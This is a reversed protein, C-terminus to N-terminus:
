RWQAGRAACRQARASHRPLPWMVEAMTIAGGPGSPVVKSMDVGLERARARVAPAARIAATESEAKPLATTVKRDPQRTPAALEGVVTGADPHPGEEFVLLPAGVNVREGPRVLLQAIRGAQPSPIEVVAKETEVSLLPQDAVVHEGETVHWAVIEAAQLGEGLDPLSFPIM